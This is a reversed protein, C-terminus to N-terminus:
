RKRSRWGYTAILAGVIVTIPGIVSWTVTNRMPSGLLVGFGQWAWLLGFLALLVGVGLLIIGRM